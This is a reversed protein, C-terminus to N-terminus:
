PLRLKGANHHICDAVVRHGESTLHDDNKYYLGPRDKLCGMVDLYPIKRQELDAELLRDPYSRDLTDPSLGFVSAQKNFLSQDTQHKDPIVIFEYHFHMTKSLDELRDLSRNLVKEAELSYSNSRSMLLYISNSIRKGQPTRYYRSKHKTHTDPSLYHFAFQAAYSRQLFYRSKLFDIIGSNRSEENSSGEYYRIMDSFDNGLYFVFLYLEPSGLEKHRFEVVDLQNPLASGPAGLDLYRAHSDKCILNIFTEEDKVGLGFSFSDGLVPILPTGESNKFSPVLRGGWRDIHVTTSYEYYKVEFKSNPKFRVFKGERSDVPWGTDTGYHMVGYLNTGVMFQRLWAPGAFRLGMEAAAFGLSFGFLIAAVYFVVKKKWGLPSSGM